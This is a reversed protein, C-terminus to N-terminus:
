RGSELLSILDRVSRVVSLRDHGMALRVWAGIFATELTQALVRPNGRYRLRGKKQQEQIFATVTDIDREGDARILERIRDDRSGQALFEFFLDYSRGYARDMADFFETVGDQLSRGDFARELATRLVQQGTRFVAELLSDKSPFYRSIAAKRVGVRQAIEDMTSLDFGRQTFVEVAAEIIRARAAEKYGAVVKPM